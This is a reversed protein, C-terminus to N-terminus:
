HWKEFDKYGFRNRVGDEIASYLYKISARKEKTLLNTGILLLRSSFFAFYFLLRQPTNLWKKAILLRNRNMYYRSRNNAHGGTSYSVKHTAKSDATILCQYGMDIARRCLDVDEYYLFYREDLFYGDLRMKENLFSQSFLLASGEIYGTTWSKTNPIRFAQDFLLGPWLKGAFTIKTTDNHDYVIPGVLANKSKKSCAILGEIDTPTIYADNNLLLYYDTEYKQAEKIGLNVGGAFGRNIESTVLKITVENSFYYDDNTSSKSKNSLFHRFQTASDNTSGNEILVIMSNTLNNGLLFEIAQISQEWHMWNLIIISTNFKATTPNLQNEV